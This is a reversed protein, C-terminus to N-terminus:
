ISIQVTGTVTRPFGYFATVSGELGLAPFNYGTVKHEEDTLNRGHIGAQLLGDDSIWVFSLDYLSYASKDLLPNRVEFQSTQDRYSWSALM